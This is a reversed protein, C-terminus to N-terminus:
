TPRRAEGAYTVRDGEDISDTVFIRHSGDPAVRVVVHGQTSRVQGLFRANVAKSAPDLRTIFVDRLPRGKWADLMRQLSAPDPHTAHWGQIVYARADLAQTFGPWCADFYGHHDASAVDLRGAARTIPTEVDLWPVAGEHTDATLDGGAFYRFGRYALVLAISMHNEEPSAETTWRARPPFLDRSTDAQGTWVRGNGGVFRLDFAGAQRARLQTNSGVRVHEVRQGAKARAMLWALHNSAFPAQILPLPAYDPFGRDIVVQAPVLADVESLGTLVYGEPTRPDGDLPSGVHDPHVHTAIMYDLQKRGAAAAHRLIYRAVWAGASRSNDPRLATSAPPGGRTAGCDILITTGDPGLIFTANGVGTDIHHIDLHGPTWPPLPAPEAAGAKDWAMALLSGGYLGRRLIDRRSSVMDIM